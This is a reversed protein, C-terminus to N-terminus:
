FPLSAVNDPSVAQLLPVGPLAPAQAFAGTTLSAALAAASAISKVHM